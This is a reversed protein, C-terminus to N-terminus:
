LTCSFTLRQEQSADSVGKLERAMGQLAGAMIRAVFPNLAVPRGNIQLQVKGQLVPCSKEEGAVLAQAMASCSEFGCSGCDLRPLLFAKEVIIKAMAAINEPAIGNFHPGHPLISGEHPEISYSALALSAQLAPALEQQVDEQQMDEPQMDEPRLCLIRPLFNQSKAGEILLIDAADQVLHLMDPLEKKEGWFLAAENQGLALVTRAHEKGEARFRGTDSQPADLDHHSQKIIAVRLGQTELEQALALTLTTKGSNKYGVINIARM